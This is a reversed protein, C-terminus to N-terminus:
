NGVHLDERNRARKLLTEYLKRHERASDAATLGQGAAAAKGRQGMQQRLNPDTALRELADALALSNTPPFLFGTEGHAVLERPGPIDSAVVPLGLTMAEVIVLGRGESLSPLVLVDAAGMYETALHPPTAGAFSVHQLSRDMAVNRLPAESPGGGVVLTALKRGRKQLEAHAELLTQVSKRPILSGVYAVRLGSFEAFRQVEPPWQARTAARDPIDVGLPIFVSKEPPVGLAAFEEVMAHSVGICADAGLSVQRAVTALLASRKAMNLDGGHSTVVLPAGTRRAASLGAIGSPYLWHAHILDFGPALRRANWALAALLSPVQALLLPNRRLNPVIGGVGEALRQWRPIWYRV